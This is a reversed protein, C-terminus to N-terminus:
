CMKAEEQNNNQRPVRTAEATTRRTTVSGQAEMSQNAAKPLFAADTECKRNGTTDLLLGFGREVKETSCPLKREGPKEVKDLFGKTLHGLPSDDVRM